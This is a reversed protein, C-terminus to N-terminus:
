PGRRTLYMLLGGSGVLLSSVLALIVVFAAPPQVDGTAPAALQAVAVADPAPTASASALASAQDRSLTLAITSSDSLSAFFTRRIIDFETFLSTWAGGPSSRKRLELRGSSLAALVASLGGIEDIEVDTLRVGLRASSWFRVRQLPGGDTDFLDIQVVRLLATQGPVLYPGPEAAKLRVPTTTMAKSSLVSWTRM